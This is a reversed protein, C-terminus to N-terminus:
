RAAEFRARMEDDIRKALGNPYTQYSNYLNGHDRGPVVECADERGKSKLFDCLMTVAEELHFTDEAGCVIRLKGLLKPGLAAWNTELVRRIDYRTWALQVEPNMEGTVRDFLKMPRGDPGRPSFVWEFSAIQGGYEGLVEEHRTFDEMSVHRRGRVLNLPQGGRTRYANQTSGPSADIGTFSRMDVPDPSTPWSGGFFDPHAVQLWLTSWGGSSHGTLFRAHPSAIMRFCKELYPIFEEILARSWPGNNVSDAFVHHGSPFSGDLYVRVMPLREGRRVQEVWGPGERWAATHNGGFGHVVYCAPYRRATEEDYGPPLVIGARMTIPRGWFTSLLASEYEVLKVNPTDAPVARGETLRTLTLVVQEAAAPNLAKIEIVESYLDGKNQRTRAYSHDPDLLAMAQWDGAPAQSFPRPYAKRDPDFEVSSGPALHEVEMAAVWTAGPAFGASLRDRKIGANSFFVLMRGSVPKVTLKPDLTIRFRLAGAACVSQVALVLCFFVRM